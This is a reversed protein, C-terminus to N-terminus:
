NKPDNFDVAVWSIDEGKFTQYVDFIVNSGDDINRISYIPNIFYTHMCNDYTNPEHVASPVYNSPFVIHYKISIEITPDKEIFGTFVNSDVAYAANVKVKTSLSASNIFTALTNPQTPGHKTTRRKPQGHPSSRRKLSM